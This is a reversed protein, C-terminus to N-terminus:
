GALRRGTTIVAPDMLPCVGTKGRNACPGLKECLGPQGCDQPVVGDWDAAPISAAVPGQYVHAWRLAPDVGPVAPASMIGPALPVAEGDPEPLSKVSKVSKVCDLESHSGEEEEGDSSARVAQRIISLYDTMTDM